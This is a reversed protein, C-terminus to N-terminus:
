IHILSLDALAALGAQVSAPRTDGGIAPTTDDPLKSVDEPAVVVVIQDIAPCARFADLTWDLVRRGALAQWQKAVPGGARTGRGAAVVIAATNGLLKSMGNRRPPSTVASLAGKRVYFTILFYAIALLYLKSPPRKNPGALRVGITVTM